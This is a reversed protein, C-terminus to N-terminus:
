SMNRSIIINQKEVRNFNKNACETCYAASHQITKGTIVTAM